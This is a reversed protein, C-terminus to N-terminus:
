GILEAQRWYRGSVSGKLCKTIGLQDHWTTLSISIWMSAMTIGKILKTKRTKVNQNYRIKTETMCAM